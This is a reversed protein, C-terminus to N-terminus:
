APNAIVCLRLCVFYAERTFIMHNYGSDDSDNRVFSIKKGAVVGEWM